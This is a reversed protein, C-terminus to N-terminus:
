TWGAAKGKGSANSGFEPGAATALV